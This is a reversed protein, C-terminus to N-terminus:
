VTDWFYSVQNKTMVKAFPFRNEFCYKVLGLFCRIHVSQKSFVSVNEKIYLFFNHLNQFVAFASSSIPSEALTFTYSCTVTSDQAISVIQITEVICQTEFFAGVKFRYLDFYLISKSSIQCYYGSSQQISNAHKLKWTPRSTMITQWVTLSYVSSLAYMNKKFDHTVRLKRWKRQQM